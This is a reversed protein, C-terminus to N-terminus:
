EKKKNSKYKEFQRFPLKGKSNPVLIDIDIDDIDMDTDAIM